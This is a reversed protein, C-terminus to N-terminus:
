SLRPSFNHFPSCWLCAIHTKSKFDCHVNGIASTAFGVETPKRKVKQKICVVICRHSCLRIVEIFFTVFWSVPNTVTHKAM